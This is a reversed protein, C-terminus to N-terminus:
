RPPAGSTTGRPSPWGGTACPSCRPTACTRRTSSRGCPTTAAASRRGGVRPGAHRGGAPRRAAHDRREAATAGLDHRPLAPVSPPTATLSGVPGSGVTPGAPPRDRPRGTVRVADDLRDSAASSTPTACSGSPWWGATPWRARWSRTSGATSGIVYGADGNVSVPAVEMRGQYRRGLNVLFRAVRPATVVPRRAARRHPGGDSTCVVDPALRDLVGQVDGTAVARAARRGAAPRRGLGPAPRGDRIRRRSRSAIQRCAAPSRGVMAGIEDYPVAFVEALVFVAREVPGLEDLLILFGLTLSDALEAAEEPGPGAVLPEPLWPGPYVSPRRRRARLHDLAVRTTVTTLWAAPREVSWRDTREWRFWVESM